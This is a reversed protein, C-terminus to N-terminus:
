IIESYFGAFVLHTVNKLYCDKLDLLLLILFQEGFVKLYFSTQSSFGLYSVHVRAGDLL